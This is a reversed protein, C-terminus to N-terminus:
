PAAGTAYHVLARAHYRRKHRDTLQALTTTDFHQPNGVRPLSGPFFNASLLPLGRNGPRDTFRYPYPHARIMLQDTHDPRHGTVRHTLAAPSGSTTGPQVDPAPAPAKPPALLGGRTLQGLTHAIAPRPDVARADARRDVVRATQELALHVATSVTEADYERLGRSGLILYGHGACVSCDPSVVAAARVTCLPCCRRM